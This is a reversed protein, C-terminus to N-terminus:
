GRIRLTDTPNLTAARYSILGVVAWVILYVFVAPIIFVLWNTDARYAFNELWRNIFYWAAPLALLNAILALVGFENSILKIIDRVSSGLVKRIGIERTRANATFMALGILGLTSLFIALGAFSGVIHMVRKDDQYLSELRQDVFSYSLPWQPIEATWINDLYDLVTSSKGEKYRVLLNFWNQPYNDHSIFFVTPTVADHMSTFHIDEVVGIIQRPKGDYFGNLVMGVPDDVGIRTAATQNIVTAMETDTQMEPSFNRGQLVRTDLTEFLETDCSIVAVHMQKQGDDSEYSLNAYNNPVVTPVNHSLSVHEVDPHQLLQNRLWIARSSSQSDWPNKIYFLNESCYGPSRNTLFSMQSYIMLSAVILAISIAFQLLLLLQRTKLQILKNGIGKVSTIVSGGKIATIAKFRSMVLAPYFGAILPVVILLGIVVLSFGPSGIFQQTMQKGTLNNLVPLMIEVLLLAIIM